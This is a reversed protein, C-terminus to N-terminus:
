KKKLVYTKIAGQGFSAHLYPSTWTYKGKALSFQGFDKTKKLVASESYRLARVYKLQLANAVEKGSLLYTQDLQFGQAHYIISDKTIRLSVEQQERWDEADENMTFVYTGYWKGSIKDASASIEERTSRFATNTKPTSVRDQPALNAIDTNGVQDCSLLFFVVVVPLFSKMKFANM